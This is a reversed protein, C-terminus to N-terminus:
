AYFELNDILSNLAAEAAEIPKRSNPNCLKAEFIVPQDITGRMMDIGVRRVNVITGQENVLETFIFTTFPRFAYALGKTGQEKNKSDKYFCNPHAANMRDEIQKIM